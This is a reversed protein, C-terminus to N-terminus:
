SDFGGHKSDAIEQALKVLMDKNGGDIGLKGVSITDKRDAPATDIFAKELLPIDWFSLKAEDASAEPALSNSEKTNEAAGATAAFSLFGSLLAVAIVSKFKSNTTM